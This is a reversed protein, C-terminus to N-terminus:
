DEPGDGGRECDDPDPPQVEGTGQCRWCEKEGNNSNPDAGTGHCKPCEPAERDEPPDFDGPGKLCNPDSMLQLHTHM